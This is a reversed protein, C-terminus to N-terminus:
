IAANGGDLSVRSQIQTVRAEAAHIDAFEAVM